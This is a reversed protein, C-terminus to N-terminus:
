LNERPKLLIEMNKFISQDEVKSGGQHQYEFRKDVM